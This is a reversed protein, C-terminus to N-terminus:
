WPPLVAWLLVALLVALLPLVVLAGALGRGGYVSAAIEKADVGNARLFAGARWQTWVSLAMAVIGMGGAALMAWSPPGGERRPVALMLLATVQLVGLAGGSRWAIRAAERRQEPTAAPWRLQNRILLSPGLLVGATGVLYAAILKVHEWEPL